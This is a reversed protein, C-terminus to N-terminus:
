NCTLNGSSDCSCVGSDSDCASNCEALLGESKCAAKMESVFEKLIQKILKLGENMGQKCQKPHSTTKCLVKFEKFIPKALSM